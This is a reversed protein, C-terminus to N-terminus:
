LDIQNADKIQTARKETLLKQPGERPHLEDSPVYVPTERLTMKEVQQMAGGKVGSAVVIVAQSLGSTIRNRNPLTYKTVQTTPHQESLLVGNKIIDEFLAKNEPPYPRLIGSGLVTITKGGVALAGEHAATDIGLAGGSIITVGKQALDKAAQQAWKCAEVDASRSGVIAISKRTDLSDLNGKAYLLPPPNIAEKLMPPYLPGTYTIIEIKNEQCLEYTEKATKFDTAAPVLKELMSPKLGTKSELESINTETLEKLRELSSLLKLLTVPGAGKVDQISLLRLKEERDESM